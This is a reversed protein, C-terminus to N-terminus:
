AFRGKAPFPIQSDAGTPEPQSLRSNRHRSELGKAVEIEPGQQPQLTTARLLVVCEVADGPMTKRKGLFWFNDKLDTNAALCDGRPSTAAKTAATRSNEGSASTSGLSDRAAVWGGAGCGGGRHQPPPSSQPPPLPRLHGM